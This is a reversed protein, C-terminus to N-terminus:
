AEVGAAAKGAPPHLRQQPPGKRGERHGAEGKKGRSDQSRDESVLPSFFFLSHPESHNEFQHAGPDCSPKNFCLQEGVEWSRIDRPRPHPRLIQMGVLESTVTTASSTQPGCPSGSASLSVDARPSSLHGRFYPPMEGVTRQAGWAGGGRAKRWLTHSHSSLFTLGSSKGGWRIVPCNFWPKSASFGM